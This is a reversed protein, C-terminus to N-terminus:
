EIEIRGIQRWCNVENPKLNECSKKKEIAKESTLKIRVRENKNASIVHSPWWNM